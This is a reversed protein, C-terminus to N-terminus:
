VSENRSNLTSDQNSLGKKLGESDGGNRMEWSPLHIRLNSQRRGIDRKGDEFLTEGGGGVEGEEGSTALKPLKQLVKKLMERRDEDKQEVRHFFLHKM